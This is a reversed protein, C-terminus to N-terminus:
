DPRRHTTLVIEAWIRTEHYEDDALEDHRKMQRVCAWLAAELDHIRVVMGGPGGSTGRAYRAPAATGQPEPSDLWGPLGEM